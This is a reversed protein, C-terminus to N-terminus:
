YALGLRHAAEWLEARARPDAAEEILRRPQARQGQGFLQACGQETVVASQQFSTVPTGILPVVTSCDTKEHWSPLAVIAQGGASHLAGVIFDTQGGFGSYIRGGVYSANAQAFLDIQLATNVSTMAPNRAIQAPDNVTETRRMVLRRNDDAWAYLEPSGFLFSAQLPRDPDLAGAEELGLVGDSLMESWVGLRRRATVGRAVADPIQGIGLQLTAGDVVLDAVLAGIGATLDDAPRPTPSALPEDVEVGVDVLDLDIEADGFTYPMARNLQAVVLGGRRRVAELAAPLINVEIGLSAVSGRPVTTHLIVADPPRGRAFLLPVMSLRMPLYDLGSRGRMAPGVFPTEFVVDPRAPLEGHANLVFLRYSEVTADLVRLLRGPLAFNGSTVVRPQASPLGGLLNALQHETVTRM